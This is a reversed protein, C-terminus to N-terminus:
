GSRWGWRLFAGAVWPFPKLVHDQQEPTPPAFSPFPTILFLLLQHSEDSEEPKRLTLVSPRFDSSRKYTISIMIFYFIDFFIQQPMRNAWDDRWGSLRQNGCVQRIQTLFESINSLNEGPKGFFSILLMRMEQRPPAKQRNLDREPFPRIFPLGESLNPRLIVPRRGFSPYPLLIAPCSM